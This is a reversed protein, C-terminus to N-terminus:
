AFSQVNRLSELHLYLYQSVFAGVIIYIFAPAITLGIDITPNVFSHRAEFQMNTLKDLPLSALLNSAVIIYPILAIVICFLICAM